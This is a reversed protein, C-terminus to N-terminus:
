DTAWDQMKFDWYGLKDEDNRISEAYEEGKISRVFNLIVEVPYYLDM